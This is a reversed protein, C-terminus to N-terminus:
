YVGKSNLFASYLKDTHRIHHSWWSVLYRVTEAAVIDPNTKYQKQYESIRTKYADHEIKHQPYAPFDYKQMLQEEDSFHTEGYKVLSDLTESIQTSGRGKKIAKDLDNIREFLAQHQADLKKINVSFEKTWHYAM